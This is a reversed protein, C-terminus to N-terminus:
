VYFTVEPDETKSMKFALKFIKRKLSKYKHRLIQNTVHNPADATPFVELLADVLVDNITFKINEPNYLSTRPSISM